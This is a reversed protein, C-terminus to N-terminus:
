NIFQLIFEVINKTAHATPTVYKDAFQKLAERDYSEEEIAQVIQAAEKSIVGPLEQEYDIALGRGKRYFDIDFDYFYLPIGLVATEYIICSYDSIVYDAAFLMEFSTFGEGRMCADKVKIDSLPHLKIVLNYKDKDISHILKKMAVAAEAEEKRFTPAYLIVPKEKLQPYKEYIRKQVQEKYARSNLLDLRPLPMTIIKGKECHFGKALHEKYADASAFVYDYNQHMKMAEAIDKRSGEAKDLATYGFKKMTGMSHWMQIITLSQKHKLLSVPICYTDLLAVQATALHYMQKLMHMGYCIKEFVSANLGGNLKRCLCVVKVDSKQRKLEREIMRFEDSPHNSQRSLMVVKKQVPLLKMGSYLVSLGVTGFQILKIM